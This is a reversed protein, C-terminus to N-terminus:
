FFLRDFNSFRAKADGKQKKLKKPEPEEEQPSEEEQGEKQEEEINDDENQEEKDEDENQEDEMDEDENQEDEEPQDRQEHQVQVQKETPNKPKNLGSGPKEARKKGGKGQHGTEDEEAVEQNGDPQKQFRPNDCKRKKPLKEPTQVPRQVEGEAAKRKNGKGKGKGEKEMTTHKGKGKAKAMLALALAKGKGGGSTRFFSLTSSTKTRYAHPLGTM